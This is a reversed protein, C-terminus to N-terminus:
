PGRRAGSHTVRVGSGFPMDSVREKPACMNPLDGDKQLADPRWSVMSIYHVPTHLNQM